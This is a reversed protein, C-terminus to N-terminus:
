AKAEKENKLERKITAWHFLYLPLGIIIMALDMAMESQRQTAIQDFGKSQEQWVKYDDAWKQMEAKEQVTLCVSTTTAITTTGANDTASSFKEISAPVCAPMSYFNRDAQTFIFTKLALNMLGVLGIVAIVLGILSFLYLYLTRVINM